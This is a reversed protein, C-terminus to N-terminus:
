RSSPHPMTETANSPPPTNKSPLIAPLKPSRLEEFSAEGIVQFPAAERWPTKTNCHPCRLARQTQRGPPVITLDYENDAPIMWDMGEGRCEDAAVPVMPPSGGTVEQTRTQYPRNPAARGRHPEAGGTYRHM